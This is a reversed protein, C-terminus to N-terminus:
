VFYLFINDILLVRYFPVVITDITDEKDIDDLVADLEKEIAISIFRQEVNQNLQRLLNKVEQVVQTGTITDGEIKLITSEFIDTVNCVFVLLVMQLPHAFFKSINRPIKKSKNEFYAALGDFINLIFNICSKMRIFQTKEYGSIKHCKISKQECWNKHQLKNLLTIFASNAALELSDDLKTFFQEM